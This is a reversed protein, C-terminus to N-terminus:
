NQLLLFNMDTLNLLYITVRLIKERSIETQPIKMGKPGYISALKGNPALVKYSNKLVDGGLVDFVINYNHLLLSFDETKYDVVTDAGLDKVFQM